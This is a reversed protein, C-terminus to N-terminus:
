MILAAYVVERKQIILAACVAERRHMIPATCIGRKEAHHTCCRNGMNDTLILATTQVILATGM